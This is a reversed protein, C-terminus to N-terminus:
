ENTKENTQKADSTEDTAHAHTTHSPNEAHNHILNSTKTTAHELAPGRGEAKLIAAAHDFWTSLASEVEPALREEWELLTAELAQRIDQELKPRQLLSVGANLTVDVGVGAAAGAVAGLPGALVAGGTAGAAAAVAAKGTTTALATSAAKTAFPAALKASLAKSAAVGAGTSTVLKGLAAGGAVLAVTPTKEYVVPVHHVKQLQATWDLHVVVDQATPAKGYYPRAQQTVFDALSAELSALAQRYGAHASQLARVVARHIRPDTHAPRLVLAQYKRGIHQQLDHTIRAAVNPYEEKGRLSVAHAAASQAAMGLLKYTTPYALYWDCFAAIRDDADNEFVLQLEEHLVQLAEQRVRQSEDDLLARQQTVFEAFATADVQQLTSGEGLQAQKVAMPPQPNTQILVTARSADRRPNGLGTVSDSSPHHDKGEVFYGYLFRASLMGGLVLAVAGGATVTINTQNM